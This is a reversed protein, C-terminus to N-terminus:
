PIKIWWSPQIADPDQIWNNALHIVPWHNGDGYVWEALQFLTDGQEIHYFIYHDRPLRLWMSPQILDPNEGILRRNALWIRRWYPEDGSGFWWLAIGSLTDGEEVHYQHFWGNPM